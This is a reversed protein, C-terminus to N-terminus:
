IIQHKLINLPGPFEDNLYIIKKQLMHNFLIKGIKYKDKGDIKEATLESDLSTGIVKEVNTSKDDIVLEDDKKKKL